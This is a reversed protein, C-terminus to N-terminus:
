LHPRVRTAGCGTDSVMPFWPSSDQIFSIPRTGDVDLWGRGQTIVHFWLYDAIAPMTLGWRATLESRCYFAGSMRLFHLALGLPDVPPWPDHIPQM